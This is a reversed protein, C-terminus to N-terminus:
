PQLTFYATTGQDVKSELWISGDHRDVIRKAISLGIGNGSFEEPGHLRHFPQFLASAYTSDFGAGDDKVFYVLEGPRTPYTKMCGIEIVTRPKTRSFKFANDILTRFLTDILVADCVAFMSPTISISVVRVPDKRIYESVISDAIKGIDVNMKKLEISSVKSLSLLDNILEAMRDSANRIRELYHRGQEDLHPGYQKTLLEAFSDLSRLPGRLDHSVSYTFAMLEANSAELQATREQIKEGLTANLDKIRRVNRNSETIDTMIQGIMLPEGEQSIRFKQTLLFVQQGFKDPREEEYEVYGDELAKRDWAKTVAAQEPEFIEEPRKGLWGEAPYRSTMTNNIFVIRSDKDKIMVLSPTHNMFISFKSEAARLKKESELLQRYKRSSRSHLIATGSLIAAAMGIVLIIGLLFFLMWWPRMIERVEIESLLIWGTGEVIRAIGLAPKGRYNVGSLFGSNGAAAATELAPKKADGRPLLTLASNERSRLNSLVSTEGGSEKLLINEASESPVPWSDIIPYLDSRADLYHILYGVIKRNQGPDSNEFIPIVINCGPNRSPSMAHLETLIPSRSAAASPLADIVEQDIGISDSTSLAISFDPKLALSAAYGYTKAFTEFDALLDRRAKANAAASAARSANTSNVSTGATAGGAVADVMSITESSRATEEAEVLHRIRWQQIQEIKEISVSNLLTKTDEIIKRYQAFSFAVILAFLLIFAAAIILRERKTTAQSADNPSDGQDKSM